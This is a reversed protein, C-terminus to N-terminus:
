ETKHQERARKAAELYDDAQKRFEVLKPESQSINLMEIAFDVAKAFDGGRWAEAYGGLAKLYRSRAGESDEQEFEAILDDNEDM